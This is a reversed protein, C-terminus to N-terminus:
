YKITGFEASRGGVPLNEGLFYVSTKSAFANIPGLGFFDLSSFGKNRLFEIGAQYEFRDSNDFIIIGDDTLFRIYIEAADSRDGSHDIVLVDFKPLMELQSLVSSDEPNQNIMTLKLSSSGADSVVKEAWIKSSEIAVVANGRSLWWLTSYGSGLELVSSSVPVIQDIFSAASYSWWPVVKEFQRAQKTKRSNEWDHQAIFHTRLAHWTPLSLLTKLIERPRAPRPKVTSM